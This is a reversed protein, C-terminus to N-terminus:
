EFSDLMYLSLRSRLVVQQRNEPLLFVNPRPQGMLSRYVAAVTLATPRMCPQHAAARVAFPEPLPGLPFSRLAGEATATHVLYRGGSRLLLYTDDCVDFEGLTYAQLSITAPFHFAHTLEWRLDGPNGLWCTWGYRAAAWDTHWIRRNLKLTDDSWGPVLRFVRTPDVNNSRCLMNPLPQLYLPIPEPSLPLPPTDDRSIPDQVVGCCTLPHSGVHDYLALEGFANGCVTYGLAADFDLAAFAWVAPHHAAPTLWTVPPAPASDSPPRDIAMSLNAPFRRHRQFPLPQPPSRALIRPPRRGRHHPPVLATKRSQSLASQRPSCPRMACQRKDHRLLRLPSPSASSLPDLVVAEWIDIITPVSKIFVPGRTKSPLTYLELSTQRVAVILDNWLVLLHPACRTEPSDPVPPLNHLTNAAWDIIHLAIADKRLACAIFRGQLMLVHSSGEIRCLETFYPSHSHHSFSIVHVSPSPLGIGLAFVVGAEQVELRATEVPGPLYAEAIPEAYGQFLLSLDWCSIKSVEDDSSAVFLWTGAVLRLWSIPLHPKTDLRWFTVPPMPKGLGHWADALRHARVVLTELQPQNLTALPKLHPPLVHRASLALDRLLKMWLLKAHTARRLSLLDRVTLELCVLIFLEQIFARISPM